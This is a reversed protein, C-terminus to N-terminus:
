SHELKILYNNVNSLDVQDLAVAQNVSYEGVQLRRLASLYASTGLQAGIDAGLTRIYTGSSVEVTITLQPYQYEGLELRRVTVQRPPLEVAQGARALHYSRVGGVKIASYAPPIQSIEGTFDTLAQRVAAVDPRRTSVPTLQGEADGTDSTAGLTLEATYVKDLKILTTAQKTASGVLILMLGTAMPDLTGAHGLKRVGLRPRLRRIIDFSTIGAPKDILLLGSLDAPTTM